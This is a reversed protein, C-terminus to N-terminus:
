AGGAEAQKRAKFAAMKLADVVQKNKPDLKEARELAGVAEGFRAAAYRCCL